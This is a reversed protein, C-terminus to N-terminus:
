LLWRLAFTYSLRSVALSLVQGIIIEFLAANHAELEHLAKIVEKHEASEPCYYELTCIIKEDTLGERALLIQNSSFCNNALSSLILAILIVYKIM